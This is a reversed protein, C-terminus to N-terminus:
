GLMEFAFDIMRHFAVDLGVFENPSNGEMCRNIFEEITKGNIRFLERNPHPDTGFQHKIQHFLKNLLLFASKKYFEYDDVNSMILDKFKGFDMEELSPRKVIRIDQAEGVELVFLGRYVDGIDLYEFPEELLYSLNPNDKITKSM